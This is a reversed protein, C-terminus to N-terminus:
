EICRSLPQWGVFVKESENVRQKIEEVDSEYIISEDIAVNAIALHPYSFELGLKEIAIDNSNAGCLHQRFNDIIAQRTAEEDKLSKLHLQFGETEVRSRLYEEIAMVDNICGKLSSVPPPYNDIGVLLAYINRTM